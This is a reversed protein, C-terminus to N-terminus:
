RSVSVSPKFWGRDVTQTLESCALLGSRPMILNRHTTLLM